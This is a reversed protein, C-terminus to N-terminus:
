EAAVKAIKAAMAKARAKRWRVRAAKAPTGIFDSPLM